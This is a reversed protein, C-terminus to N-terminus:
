QYVAELNKWGYGPEFRADDTCRRMNPVKNLGSLFCESSHLAGPWGSVGFILNEVFAICYEREKM